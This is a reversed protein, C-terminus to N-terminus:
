LEVETSAEDAEVEAPMEITESVPVIVAVSDMVVVDLAVEDDELTVVLDTGNGRDM